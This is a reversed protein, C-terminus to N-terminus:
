RSRSRSAEVHEVALDLLPEVPQGALLQRQEHDGVLRHPGDAGAAVGRRRLGGLRVGVDPLPQPLPEPGLGGVLAVDDVAAAHFGSFM